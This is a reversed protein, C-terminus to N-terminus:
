RPLLKYQQLLAKFSKSSQYVHSHLGLQQAALVHDANDDVCLTEKPLVQFMQLAAQFIAADPKAAKVVSSNIIYDFDNKVRLKDLDTLLRSTANTILAIPVCQRAENILKQVATDIVGASESWHHVIAAADCKPFEKQLQEAISIRWAEDTIQGLIAPQLLDPLFAIRRLTGLPLKAKQEIPEDHQPPWHRLVGDLDILLAHIM